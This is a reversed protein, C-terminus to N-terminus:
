AAGAVWYILWALLIGVVIMVLPALSRSGSAAPASQVTAAALCAACLLRGEHETVCERCYSRSCAPCRCAAERSEHNWCRQQLEMPM